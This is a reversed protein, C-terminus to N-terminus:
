LYQYFSHRGRNQKNSPSGFIIRFSIKKYKRQSSKLLALAFGCESSRDTRDLVKFHVSMSFSGKKDCVQKLHSESSFHIIWYFISFLNAWTSPQQKQLMFGYELWLHFLGLSSPAEQNLMKVTNSLTITITILINQVPAEQNNTLQLFSFISFLYAATHVNQLVDKYQIQWIETNHM